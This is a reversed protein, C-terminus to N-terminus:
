SGAAVLTRTASKKRNENLAKAARSEVLDGLLTEEDAATKVIEERVPPWGARPRSYINLVRARIIGSASAKAKANTIKIQRTSEEMLSGSWTLPKQHHKARAKRIMYRKTRKQYDYRGDAGSKFHKPLMHGHWWRVADAVGVNLAEVVAKPDAIFGIESVQVHLHFAM